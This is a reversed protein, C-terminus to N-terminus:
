CFTLTSRKFSINTQFKEKYYSIFNKSLFILLVVSYVIAFVPMIYQKSRDEKKTNAKGNFFAFLIFPLFSIVLVIFFMVNPKM